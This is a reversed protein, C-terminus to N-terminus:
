TWDVASRIPTQRNRYVPTMGFIDCQWIVQLVLNSCCTPIILGLGSGVVLGLGLVRVKILAIVRVMVLSIFILYVGACLVKRSRACAIACVHTM